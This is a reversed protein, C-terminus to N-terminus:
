KVFSELKTKINNFNNYLFIEFNKHINQDVGRIMWSAKDKNKEHLLCLMPVASLGREERLLAREIEMGVGHSPANILVIFYEAADVSEVDNKRVAQFLEYGEPMKPMDLIAQPLKFKFGNASTYNSPLAVHKSLVDHGKAALFEVIKVPLEVDEEATGAISGSYYIKAM